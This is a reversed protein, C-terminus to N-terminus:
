ARMRRVIERRCLTIRSCNFAVSEGAQMDALCNELEALLELRDLSELSKSYAVESFRPQMTLAGAISSPHGMHVNM